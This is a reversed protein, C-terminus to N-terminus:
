MSQKAVVREPFRLCRTHNRFQSTLADAEHALNLGAASAKPAPNNGKRTNYQKNHTNEPWNMVHQSLHQPSRLTRDQQAPFRWPSGLLMACLAGAWADTLLASIQVLPLYRHKDQLEAAVQEWTQSRGVCVLHVPLAILSGKSKREPRDRPFRHHSLAAPSCHKLSQAARQM